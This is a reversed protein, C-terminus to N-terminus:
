GSRMCATTDFLSSRMMVTDCSEARSILLAKPTGMPVATGSTPGSPEGTPVMVTEM